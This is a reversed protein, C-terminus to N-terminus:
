VPRRRVPGLGSVQGCPHGLWGEGVGSGAAGAPEGGGLLPSGVSAVPSGRGGVGVVVRVGGRVGGGGCRFGVVGCVVVVGISRGRRRGVM